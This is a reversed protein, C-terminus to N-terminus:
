NNRLQELAAQSLWRGNEYAGEIKYLAEDDKLPNASLLVLRAVQGSSAAESAPEAQLVGARTVLIAQILYQDRAYVTQARYEVTLESFPGMGVIRGDGILVTQDASVTQQQLDVVNVGIFAFQAPAPKSQCAMLLTTALLLIVGPRLIKNPM